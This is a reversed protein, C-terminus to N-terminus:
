TMRGPSEPRLAGSTLRKRAMWWRAIRDAPGRIVLYPVFGLLLAITLAEGPYLTGLVILQYVADLGLGLAIIRGTAKLGDVLRARRQGADRLITSFYPPRGARADGLGDRIALLAAMLPQLIFRFALPGSPRALLDTWIRSLVEQIDPM